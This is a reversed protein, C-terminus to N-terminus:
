QRITSSVSARFYIGQLISFGAWSAKVLLRQFERRRTPSWISKGKYNPAPFTSLAVPFCNERWCVSVQRHMVRADVLHDIILLVM